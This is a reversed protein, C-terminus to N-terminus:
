CRQLVADCARAISLAREGRHRLRRVPRDHGLRGGPQGPIRARRVEPHVSRAAAQGACAPSANTPLATRCIADALSARACSRWATTTFRANEALRTDSTTTDRRRYHMGFMRIFMGPPPKSPATFAIRDDPTRDPM